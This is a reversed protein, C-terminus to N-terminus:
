RRKKIEEIYRAAADRGGLGFALALALCVAGFLINFTTGVLLPAIGLEELAISLIFLVIAYKSIRGLFDPHPLSANNAMAVVMGSVFNAVFMGLTFIFVATIVHPIYAFVRELLGSVMTLGLINVTAMLVVIILLWYFLAAIMHSVTMKVGSRDLVGSIGAKSALDDFKVTKLASHIVDRILRAIYWGLILVILASFLTPFYGAARTLVEKLSDVVVNYIYIM